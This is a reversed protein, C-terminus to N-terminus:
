DSADTIGVRRNREVFVVQQDKIVHWVNVLIM